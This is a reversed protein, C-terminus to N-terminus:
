ILDGVRAEEKRRSIADICSYISHLSVLMCAIWGDELSHLGGHLLGYLGANPGLSDSSALTDAQHM